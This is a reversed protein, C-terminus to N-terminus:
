SWSEGSLEWFLFMRAELRLPRTRLLPVGGYLALFIVRLRGPANAFGPLTTYADPSTGGLCLALKRGQPTAVCTLTAHSTMSGKDGNTTYRLGRYQLLM